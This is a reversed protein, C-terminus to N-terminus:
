ESCRRGTKRGGRPRRQDSGAMAALDTAGIMLVEGESDATDLWIFPTNPHEAELIARGTGIEMVLTGRPGLHAQAGSLIRRALDLGDEGGLHAMAPEAAHEPPFAAVEAAAVYPPNAIILDYTRGAVAALLDGELLTVRAGVGHDAVNARAVELARASLEVADVHSAEFRLAALIALCGSGTCLDLIRPQGEDDGTPVLDDLRGECILEGLYSRPVIVREDVRFRHGQIYASRTLYSAPKRTVIRRGVIQHVAHREDRTLRADLWPELQDIPLHLTELILFAAEDLATTTGHGYSLGAANFRSVSWRLWDRITHLDHIATEDDSM